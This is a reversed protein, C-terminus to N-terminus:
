RASSRTTTAAWWPTSIRRPQDGLNAYRFGPKRTRTDSALPHPYDASPVERVYATVLNLTETRLGEQHSLLDATTIKEPNAPAPLRLGPWVQALTTDLTLVGKRDLVAALLGVFSKTQSAIYFLTHRDAPTSRDARIRGHVGILPVDEGHVIVASFAPFSGPTRQVTELVQRIQAAAQRIAPPAVHGTARPTSAHGATAIAACFCGALGLLGARCSLIPM